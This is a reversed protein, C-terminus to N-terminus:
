KKKNSNVASLLSTLFPIAFAVIAGVGKGEQILLKQRRQPNNRFKSLYFYRTKQPLVIRRLKKKESENILLNDNLAQFICDSIHNIAATNLHKILNLKKEAQLHLILEFLDIKDQIEKKNLPIFDKFSWNTRTVM